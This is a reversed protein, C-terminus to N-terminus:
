RRMGTVIRQHLDDKDHLQSRMEKVISEQKEEHDAQMEMVIRQCKDYMKENSAIISKNQEAMEEIQKKHKEEAMKIEEQYQAEMAMMESHHSMVDAKREAFSRKLEEILRKNESVLAEHERQAQDILSFLIAIEHYM